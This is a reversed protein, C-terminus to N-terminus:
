QKDTSNQTESTKEPGCAAEKLRELLKVSIKYVLVFVLVYVLFSLLVVIPESPWTKKESDSTKTFAISLHIIPSSLTLALLAAISKIVRFSRGRLMLYSPYILFAALVFGGVSFILSFFLDTLNDRQIPFIMAIAIYFFTLGFLIGLISIGELVLRATDKKLKAM